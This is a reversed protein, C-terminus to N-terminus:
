LAELIAQAIASALRSQFEGDYLIAAESPNSIYGCEILVAPGNTRVLVRYDNTRLGNSTLGTQTLYREILRGARRSKESANPSIYVTFGRHARNTHSNHHISVFLDAGARNAIEPRENLEIFTDNNRTMIVNVGQKKLLWAVKQAVKLNVEKEYYGLYSTAGPDKGGHGPDIVVTQGGSPRSPTSPYQPRPKVPAATKLYARIQPMLMQSVYITQGEYIVTGTQGINQGNVYISGGPHTFIVVRNAANTLEVYRGATFSVQLGLRAALQEVSIMYPPTSPAAREPPAQCGSLILGLVCFGVIGVWIRPM